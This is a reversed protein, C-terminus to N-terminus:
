TRRPPNHVTNRRPTRTPDITAPPVWHPVGDTMVGRWGAAAFNRHHYGCVLGMNAISTPGADRNWEKFHHAQTWQAPRDCDPFTCGQDRAYLALRMGSPAVRRTRGYDLIGGHPDFVVSLTQSDVALDLIRRVPILDGHATKAYGAGSEAQDATMTVLLTAVVGGSDPLATTRLMMLPVERLADHMRQGATRPDPSDDVSPAPAALSDFVVRWLAGCEPTLVAGLQYMGDSRQVLSADRRHEIEADTLGAGPDLAALARAATRALQVSNMGAATETLERQLLDGHEAEVSAPLADITRRIVAAHDVSIAGTAQAAAVSEFPPAVVAGTRLRRAGLDAAAQVRAKAEGPPIHLERSLLTALNPALLSHVDAADIDNILRHDITASQRRFLEVRRLIELKQLLSRDVEARLRTLADSLQGLALEDAASLCSSVAVSAATSTM